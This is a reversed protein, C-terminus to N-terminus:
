YGFHSGPIREEFVTFEGSPHEYVDHSYGRSGRRSGSRFSDARSFSRSRRRGYPGRSRMSGGGYRSRGTSRGFSGYIDDIEDNLRMNQEIDSYADREMTRDYDPFDVIPGVDDDIIEQVIPRRLTGAPTPHGYLNPHSNVRRVVPIKTLLPVPGYQTMVTPQPRAPSFVMPQQQNLIIPQQQQQRQPAPTLIIPQQQQQQPAPTLIIPQQQAPQQVIRIPQQPQSSAVYIPTPRQVGNVGISFFIGVRM